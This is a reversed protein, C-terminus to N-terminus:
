RPARPSKRKAKKVKLVPPQIEVCEGPRIKFPVIEKRDRRNFYISAVACYQGDLAYLNPGVSPPSAAYWMEIDSRDYKDRTLWWRAM